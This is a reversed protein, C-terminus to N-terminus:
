LNSTDPSALIVPDIVVPINYASVIEDAEKCEDLIKAVLIDDSFKYTTLIVDVLKYEADKDHAFKFKVLIEALLTCIVFVKITFLIVDM